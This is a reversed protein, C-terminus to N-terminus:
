GGAGAPAPTAPVAPEPVPRKAIIGLEEAESRNKEDSLFSVFEEPSNDFRERINAPFSMFLRDAKQVVMLCDALNGIESVDGFFPEGGLTPPVMGGKLLRAVIVNIDADKADSQVTFGPDKSCDTTPWDKVDLPGKQGKYKGFSM